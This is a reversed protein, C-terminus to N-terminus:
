NDYARIRESILNQIEFTEQGQNSYKQRQIAQFM